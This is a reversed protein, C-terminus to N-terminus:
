IAVPPSQSPAAIVDTWVNGSFQEAPGRESNRCSYNTTIM